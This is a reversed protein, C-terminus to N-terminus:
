RVQMINDIKNILDDINNYEIKILNNNGSIMASLNTDKEYICIIKKNLKEAYSIEYGVGLSPISVDAILIDCEKIWSIDRNYIDEKDLSEGKNSLNTDGIHKDLVINNKDLYNIIKNYDYVIERGGRISGAFYIKM